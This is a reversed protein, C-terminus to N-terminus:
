KSKFLMFLLEAAFQDVYKGDYAYVMVSFEM